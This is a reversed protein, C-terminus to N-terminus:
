ILGLEELKAGTPLGDSDWGRSEYYPPLMKELECVEGKAAGDPLPEKVIRSPLTDDKASFGARILFLREANIIREAAQMISELDYGAGTSANLLRLIGDPRIDM